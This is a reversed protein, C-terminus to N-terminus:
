AAAFREAPDPRYFDDRGVRRPPSPPVPNAPCVPALTTLKGKAVLAALCEVHKCHGHRLFGLCECSHRGDAPNVLVHYTEGERIEVLRRDDDLVPERKTLEAGIGFDAPLQKFSYVTSERGIRLLLVNHTLLVSRAPKVRPRRATVTSM